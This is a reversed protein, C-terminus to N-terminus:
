PVKDPNADQIFDTSPLAMDDMEDMALMENLEDELEDKGAQAYETFVGAIEDQQALQDAIDDQLDMIEDANTQAQLQDMTVKGVKMAQMTNSDFQAGQIMQMQQEIMMSQGELKALEKDYMKSKRLAIVAGRSDGNKKKEVAIKKYNTADNELKKIRMDINEIQTQMKQSTAQTDVPAAAQPKADAKSGFLKGFM